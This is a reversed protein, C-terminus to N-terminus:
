AELTQAQNPGTHFRGGEQPSFRLFISKGQIYESHYRIFTMYWLTWNTCPFFRLALLSQTLENLGVMWHVPLSVLPGLNDKSCPCGAGVCAGLLYRGASSLLLVVFGSLRFYVFLFDLKRFGYGAPFASRSLSIAPKLPLRLKLPRM